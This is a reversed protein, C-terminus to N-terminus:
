TDTRGNWSTWQDNETTSRISGIGGMTAVGSRGMFWAAPLRVALITVFWLHWLAAWAPRQRLRLLRYHVQKVAAIM